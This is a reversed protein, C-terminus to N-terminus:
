LSFGFVIRSFAERPCIHCDCRFNLDFHSVLDPDGSREQVAFMRSSRIELDLLDHLACGLFHRFSLEAGSYVNVDNLV